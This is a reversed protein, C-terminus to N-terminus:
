CAKLGEFGGLADVFLVGGIGEALAYHLLIDRERATSPKRQTLSRLLVKRGDADLLAMCQGIKTIPIMRPNLRFLHLLTEDTM